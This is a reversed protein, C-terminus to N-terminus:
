QSINKIDLQLRPRKCWDVMTAYGNAEYFMGKQVSSTSEQLREWIGGLAGPLWEFSETTGWLSGWDGVRLMRITNQVCFPDSELAIKGFSPHYYVFGQFGYTAFPGSSNTVPQQIITKEDAKEIVDNMIEPSCFMVYGGNEDRIHRLTRAADNLMTPDYPANSEGVRMRTPIMWRNGATSRDVGFVTTEGGFIAGMSVIGNAYEDSLHLTDGTTIAAVDASGSIGISNDAVNVDIVEVDEGNTAYDAGGSNRVDIIQGDSFYSISGGTIKARCSTQNTHASGSGYFFDDNQVPDGDVTALTSNTDLWRHMAVSNDVDLVADRRLKQVLNVVEHPNNMARKIDVHSVRISTAIRHLDNNGATEDLTISYSQIAYTRPTPFAAFVNNSVRAGSHLKDENKVEFVKGTLRTKNPKFWRNTTSGLRSFQSHLGGEYQVMLGDSLDEFVITASDQPEAM